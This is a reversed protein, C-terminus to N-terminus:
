EAEEVDNNMLALLELLENNIIQGKEKGLKSQNNSTDKQTSQSSVKNVAITVFVVAFM